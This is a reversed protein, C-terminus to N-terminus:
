DEGGGGEREKLRQESEKSFSAHETLKASTIEEVESESKLDMGM